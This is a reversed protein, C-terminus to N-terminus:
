TRSRCLCAPSGGASPRRMLRRAAERAREFCLTPLANVAGDVAAIRAELADLCDLPTVEGRELLGVAEVATLRILDQSM